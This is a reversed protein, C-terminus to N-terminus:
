DNKGKKTKEKKVKVPKETNPKEKKVRSKKTATEEKENGGIKASDKKWLQWWKKTKEENSENGEVEKNKYIIKGNKYFVESYVSDNKYTILKGHLLGKKYTSKEVLKKTEFKKCLGNQVGKINM